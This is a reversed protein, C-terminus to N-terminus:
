LKEKLGRMWKSITGAGMGIIIEDNILNKQLFKILDNEESINVVQTKSYKSILKSFNYQDYSKDKKEGAAYIPCLVVVDSKLFSNAFKLKLNKVRSYRHPQFISIIKRKKSVAKVGDLISKIETPHHAYDDYFENHGNSFLKTMRREVGSYNLLANKINKDLQRLTKSKKNLAKDIGHVTLWEKIKSKKIPNAKIDFFEYSYNNDKLWKIAKRCSDCNKLGYINIM